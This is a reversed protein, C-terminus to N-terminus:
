TFVPVTPIIAGFFPENIRDLDDCMSQPLWHAQMLYAPIGALASQILTCRGAM